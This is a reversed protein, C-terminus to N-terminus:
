EKEKLQGTSITKYQSSPNIKFYKIHSSLNFYYKKKNEFNLIM